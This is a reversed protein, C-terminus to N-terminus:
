RKVGGLSERDQTSIAIAFNALPMAYQYILPIQSLVASVIVGKKHHKDM